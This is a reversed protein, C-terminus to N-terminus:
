NEESLFAALEVFNSFVTYAVLGRQKAIATESAGNFYLHLDVSEGHNSRKVHYSVLEVDDDNHLLEALTGNVIALAVSEPLDPYSMKEGSVYVNLNVINSM